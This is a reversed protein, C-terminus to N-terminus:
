KLITTNGKYTYVAGNDCIVEATFVYVDPTAPIGRIKGDWGYKPDNAAFNKKDFITEGWRTFIRFSKVMIGTGRIMLIDNLGDGDPTFANPVFVEAKRCFATVSISDVASCGFSNVVTVAYTINNRINAIPEPCDSCSLDTAPTWSYQVIPGNQYVPHFTVPVGNSATIDAGINVTPKPGVTITVYGTDTFCHYADYGVVRYRTTTLPTATPNSINTANLGDPPSWLYTTANTASLNTSRGVCMTDNPPTLMDFPVRVMLKVTDYAVCGLSSIGKVTYTISDAPVVTPNACNQCSLGTAPFWSYLTAGTANLQVTNGQCVDMNNNAQVIPAPNVTITMTDLVLDCNGTTGSIMINAVIPQSTNNLATFSPIDGTGLAPLGIGTKDNKWTFVTGSVPGTLPIAATAIGNCVEQNNPEDLSASPTVTITFVKIVSGCSNATGTVQIVATIPFNTNNEATFSPVDGNGNPALGIAAASNIWNYSTGAVTGTFATANVTAGNCVTQSVPQAIDPTPDITIYFTKPTGPCSNTSPTVTIAATVATSQPNATIFSPINGSGNGPLGITPLNNTWTFATGTVPSVFAIAGTPEGDCQFQNLPQIVGPTPFITIVFEKPLGVCGNATPTVAITATINTNTNNNPNFPLINGTGTAALGISPFDNTWNYVTGAVVGTFSVLGTTTGTCLQQSTPQDVDPTPNVVITFSAPNGNCGYAQASVFINATLPANTINIPTFAAINGTGNPALGILPLTNTWSFISNSAASSFDISNIGTRNCVAQNDPQVMDPTPNVTINFSTPAAPCGNNIAFINITATQPVDGTNVATFSLINGTGNAALGIGPLDNTWTFTAAQVASNFSNLIVDDTTGRNCVDQNAPQAFVTTPQITITFTKADGSCDNAFPIVTITATIATTTNNIATFAPLNGTGTAALGISPEDNIWSYNTNSVSGTFAPTTVISGNCERLDTPVEVDPTPNITVQQTATDKCGYITEAILQVNFTGAATFSVSFDNGNGTSGDSATWSFSQIANASQINSNFTLASRICGSSPGNIAALPFNNIAVIIPKVITDMCGTIGTIILQVNYTGASQYSHNVLSGSASSGDGFDWHQSTVGFFSQSNDVFNMDTNGCNRVESFTFGAQLNEIKITVTGPLIMSCGANFILTLVPTYIGSLSYTHSINNSTSQVITGDGFDWNLTDAGINSSTFNVTKSGCYSGGTYNFSGTPQIVKVTDTFSGNCGGPLIVNMTVIYTGPLAYTHSVTDGIGTNGDGFDWTASTSPLDRNYFTFRHPACIGTRESADFHPTFSGTIRVPMTDRCGFENFPIMEMWITTNVPAPNLSVQQGSGLLVTYDQNWWNYTQFGPPASLDAIGSACEYNVDIAHSCTSEVDVYAYGWHGKRVCDATTFELYITKGAMRRLSVFVTSWPKYIVASDVASTAFGPLSSTSIYEFSACEIYANATSDFLKATFRPQTWNTHGPDQLVVAYDYRISFTSDNAPIRIKYQIREAEGGIRTNGLKVAFNSGDPPNTPFLGFPDIGTPLSRQYLRHRNPIPASPNVSILNTTGVTDVSGIFCNWNNLSGNEFDINDPCDGIANTSVATRQTPVSITTGTFNITGNTTMNGVRNDKVIKAIGNQFGYFIDINPEAVLQGNTKIITWKNASYAATVNENFDFVIEYRCPIVVEGAENIFGWKGEKKVAALNNKFNRADDFQLAAILGNTNNVFSFKNNKLVRAFGNVYSEKETWTNISSTAPRQASTHSVPQNIRQASAAVSILLAICLLIRNM